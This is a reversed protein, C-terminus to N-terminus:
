IRVHYVRYAIKKRTVDGCTKLNFTRSKPFLIFVGCVGRYNTPIAALTLIRARIISCIRPATSLNFAFTIYAILLKKSTVDDCHHM